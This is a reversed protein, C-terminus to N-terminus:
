DVKLNQEFLAPLEDAAHQITEYIRWQKRLSVVDIGVFLPQAKGGGVPTGFLLPRKGPRNVSFLKRGAKAYNAPTGKRGNVKAPTSTLPLWLLPKGRILRGEQFVIALNNKHSFWGAANISNKGGTPYTKLQLGQQWFGSFGAAAISERASSLAKASAQKVAATAAAAIPAGMGQLADKAAKPPVTISIRTM